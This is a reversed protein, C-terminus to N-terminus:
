RQTQMQYVIGSRRHQSNSLSSFDLYPLQQEMTIQKRMSEVQEPISCVGDIMRSVSSQSIM